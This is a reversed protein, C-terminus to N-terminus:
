RLSSRSIDVSSTASLHFFSIASMSLQVMVTSADLEMLKM